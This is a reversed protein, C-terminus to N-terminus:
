GRGLGRSIFGARAFAVVGILLRPSAEGSGAEYGLRTGTLAWGPVLVFGGRPIGHNQPSMLLSASYKSVRGM